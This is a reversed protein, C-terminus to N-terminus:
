ETTKIYYSYIAKNAPKLEDLTSKVSEYLGANPTGGANVWRFKELVPNSSNVVAKGISVVVRILGKADPIKDAAFLPSFAIGIETKSKDDRLTNSFLTQNLVFVDNLAQPDQQEYRFEPKVSGDPNYCALAIADTEKDSIKNEGDTGKILVPKHKVVELSKGYREFDATVDYTKVELNECIYSDTNDLGIYLKRFLDHFQGQEAYDKRLQEITAWNVGLPYYEFAHHQETGNIYGPQLDLVNQAQEGKGAPDRFIGGTKAGPYGTRILYADTALDFKAPLAALRPRLKDILSNGVPRGYTFVTFYIHKDVKGEKYDAIFFSISNGEGLWKSFPIKLYATSTIEANNQWEEFDTILLADNKAAVIKEVAVQIPAHRDLYQKPDNVVQGLQTINNVQLPTVQGEALRYVELQQALVTNFCQSMLDKIVPAGFATYMGASFDVYMAPVGQKQQKDLGTQKNNYAALAAPLGKGYLDIGAQAFPDQDQGWKCSTIILCVAALYTYFKNM